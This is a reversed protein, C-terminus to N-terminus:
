KKSERYEHLECCVILRVSPKIGVLEEDVQEDTASKPLRILIDAAEKADCMRVGERAASIRLLNTPTSHSWSHCERCLSVLNTRWDGGGAGRSRCHAPDTGDPCPRRCMECRLHQKFEALLKPNKIRM